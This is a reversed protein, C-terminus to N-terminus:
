AFKWKFGAHHSREGNCVKRVNTSQFGDHSVEALSNYIEIIEDTEINIKAVKRALKKHRKEAMEKIQNVRNPNNKMAHKINEKCTVWELNEVNNNEVNMDRHNIQLDGNEPKELFIDAVLRHLFIKIDKNNFRLHMRIYGGKKVKEGQLIKKSINSYVKGTNSVLYRNGFEPLLRWVEMCMGGINLKNRM